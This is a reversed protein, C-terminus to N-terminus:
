GILSHFVPILLFHNQNFFFLNKNQNKLIDEFSIKKEEGVDAVLRLWTNIKKQIKVM